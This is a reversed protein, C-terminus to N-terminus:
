GSFGGITLNFCLLVFLVVTHIKMKVSEMMTWALIIFMYFTIEICLKIEISIKHYKRLIALKESGILGSKTLKTSSKPM